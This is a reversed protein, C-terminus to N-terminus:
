DEQRKLNTNINEVLFDTNVYPYTTTELVANSIAGKRISEKIVDLGYFKCIEYFAKFTNEGFDGDEKIFDKLDIHLFNIGAQFDKVAQEKGVQIVHHRIFDAIERYKSESEMEEGFKPNIKQYREKRMEFVQRRIEDNFRQGPTKNIKAEDPFLLKSIDNVTKEMFFTREIKLYFFLLVTIVRRM